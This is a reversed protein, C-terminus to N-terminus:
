LRTGFMRGNYLAIQEDNLRLGAAHSEDLEQQLAALGRLRVPIGEFGLAGLIRLSDDVTLALDARSAFETPSVRVNVASESVSFYNPPGLVEDFSGRRGVLIVARGRNRCEIAFLTAVFPDTSTCTIRQEQLVSNGPWGATTGRYLYPGFSM